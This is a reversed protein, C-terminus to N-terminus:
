GSFVGVSGRLMRCSGGRDHRSADEWVKLAFSCFPLSHRNAAVTSNLTTSLKTTTKRFLFQTYDTTRRYKYNRRHTPGCKHFARHTVVDAFPRLTSMPSHSSQAARHVVFRTLNQVSCRRISTDNPATPSTPPRQTVGRLNNPSRNFTIGKRFARCSATFGCVQNFGNERKKARQEHSFGNTGHRRGRCANSEQGTAAQTAQCAAAVLYGLLHCLAQNRGTKQKPHKDPQRSDASPQRAPQQHGFM